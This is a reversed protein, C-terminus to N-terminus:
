TEDFRESSIREYEEYIAEFASEWKENHDEEAGVAVHALEHALVEAADEIKLGSDVYVFIGEDDLFVTAGFKGTQEEIDDYACTCQKDPYLNRFAEWVISPPDNVFPTKLFDM